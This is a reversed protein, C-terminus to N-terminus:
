RRKRACDAADWGYLLPIVDRIRRRMRSRSIGFMEALEGLTFGEALCRILEGEVLGVAELLRLVTLHQVIMEDLARGTVCGTQEYTNLDRVTSVSLDRM